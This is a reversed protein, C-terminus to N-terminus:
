GLRALLEELAGCPAGLRKALAIVERGMAVNQAHLKRGFHSEVYAYAEPARSKGLSAAVRIMTKGVFPTVLSMWAAGRGVRSSLTLAEKVAALGLALLARDALVGDIGGGADITMAAPVIAVTTALNSEQVHPELRAPLGALSVRRALEALVPAPPATDEILTTVGSPQWYRCAGAANVYAVVGIMAPRIRSGHREFLRTADGPMM